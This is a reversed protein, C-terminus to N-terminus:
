EAERRVLQKAREFGSAYQIVHEIPDPYSFRKVQFAGFPQSRFAPGSAYGASGVVAGQLGLRELTAFEREGFDGEQGNPYCFIPSPHNAETRLREWSESLEHESRADSTQSLIPHTVTHPGFRIGTSECARLQDWSMPRYEEPPEDPVSVGGLKALQAISPDLDDAPLRKLRATVDRQAQSRSEADGLEYGRTEGGLSLELREVKTQRFVFEVRDWWFWLQGDLFGTSVFITAPCDFDAFIPALRTAQDEYGDDVTFAIAGHVPPAQGSLSALLEELPVLPYGSRRLHALGSRLAAEENGQVGRAADSVRHLMFITARDRMLPAFCASLGPSTILRLARHRLTGMAGKEM